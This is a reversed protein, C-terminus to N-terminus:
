FQETLENKLACVCFWGDNVVADDAHAYSAFLEAFMPIFSHNFKMNQFQAHYRHFGNSDCVIFHTEVNTEEVDIIMKAFAVNEPDSSVDRQFKITTPNMM